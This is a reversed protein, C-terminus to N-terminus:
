YESHGRVISLLVDLLDPQAELLEDPLVDKLARKIKREKMKNDRWGDEAHGMVAHHAKLTLKVDKGLNDYLGGKGATNIEDPREEGTEPEVVM